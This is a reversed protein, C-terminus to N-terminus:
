AAGSLLVHLERPGHVGVALTREIDASRSPGSILSVYSPPRAAIERVAALAEELTHALRDVDLVVVHVDVCLEVRRDVSASHILLSGTEAVGLQAVSVGLDARRDPWLEAPGVTRVGVEAAAQLVADRRPVNEAVALSTAGVGQVVALVAAAEEGRRVAHVRAGLRTARERFADALEVQALAM